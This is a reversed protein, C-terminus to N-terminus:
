GVLIKRAFDIYHMTCPFYAKLIIQYASNGTVTVNFSCTAMNNDGDNATYTVLTTGIPFRTGSAMDVSLSVSGSNDTANAATWNVATDSLGTDAPQSIDSPCNLLAPDENDAFLFHSWIKYDNEYTKEIEHLAYLISIHNKDRSHM